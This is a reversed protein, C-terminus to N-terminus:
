RGCTSVPISMIRVYCWDLVIVTRPERLKYKASRNTAQDRGHARPMTFDQRDSGYLLNNYHPHRLDSRCREPHLECNDHRHQQDYQQDNHSEESGRVTLSPSEIAASWRRGM